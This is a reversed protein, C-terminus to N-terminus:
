NILQIHIDMMGLAGDTVCPETQQHRVSSEIIPDSVIFITKKTNRTKFECMHPDTQPSAASFRVSSDTVGEGMIILGPRHYQLPTEVPNKILMM